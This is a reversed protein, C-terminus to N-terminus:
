QLFQFVLLQKEHLRFAGSKMQLLFSYVRELTVKLM